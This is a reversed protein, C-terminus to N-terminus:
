PELYASGRNSRSADPFRSPGADRVRAADPRADLADLAADFMADPPPAPAMDRVAASTDRGTADGPVNPSAAPVRSGMRLVVWGIALAVVALTVILLTGRTRHRSPALVTPDTAIAPVRPRGPSPTTVGSSSAHDGRLISSLAAAVDDMHQFREAPDKALCRMAVVDVVAPIQAHTSPPDPEELLHSAIMDGATENVFPPRGCLAAYLVCGVAYIDTRHDLTSVGRCQEPSMYTPTGLITGTKTRTTEAADQDFLKAIGFDLIKIREGAPVVPDRVVFLNEPKLDRHVIGAGHVMAMTVALQHVLGLAARLELPGRVLREALSEGELLEMAIYADGDSWGFDYVHVIGPDNLKAASRAEAFFRAVIDEQHSFRPLLIKIAARRGLLEHVGVWVEGMGGAGLRGHLVYSGIKRSGAPDNM